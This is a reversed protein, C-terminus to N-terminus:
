ARGRVRVSARMACRRERRRPRQGWGTVEVVATEWVSKVTRDHDVAAMVAYTGLISLVFPYLPPRGVSMPTVAEFLILLSFLAAWVGYAVYRAAWPFSMEKPGLFVANIRFIADDPEVRM